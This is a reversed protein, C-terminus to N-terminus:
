IEIIELFDVRKFDDDFSCIKNIKYFKCTSCILADNPLLCYKKIIERSIKVIESNLDLIQFISFLEFVIDLDLSKLIEPHKKIDYHRKNTTARIYFFLVESIVIPNIFGCIEKNEVKEILKKAEVKGCLHYILINSDFFIKNEEM